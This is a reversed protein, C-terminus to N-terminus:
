NLSNIYNLFEIAKTKLAKKTGSEPNNFKARLSDVSINDSFKTRYISSFLRFLDQQNDVKLYGLHLISKLYLALEAVSLKSMIKTGLVPEGHKSSELMKARIKASVKTYVIEEEIWKELMSSLNPNNLKYAIGAKVPAQRVNKLWFYLNDLETRNEPTEKIYQTIYLYAPNSNCNMYIMLNIIQDPDFFYPKQSNRQFELNLKRCYFLNHFTTKHVSHLFDYFPKLFLSKLETNEIHAMRANIQNYFAQVELFSASQFLDPIVQRKDIYKEFYQHLYKLLDELDQAIQSVMEIAEALDKVPPDVPVTISNKFVRFNNLLEILTKQHVNVFTEFIGDHYPEFYINKLRAKLNDVEERITFSVLWLRNKNPGIGITARCLIELRHFLYM